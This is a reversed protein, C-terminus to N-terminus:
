GVVVNEKGGKKGDRFRQSIPRCDIKGEVIFHQTSRNLGGGSVSM